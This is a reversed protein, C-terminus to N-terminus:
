LATITFAGDQYNAGADAEDDVDKVKVQFWGPGLNAVSVINDTPGESLEDAAYATFSATAVAVRSIGNVFRVEYIGTRLRRVQIAGGRCNLATDVFLTGSVFHAPPDPVARVRAFGEVHGPPCSQAIAQGSAHKTTSHEHAVSAAGTVLLLSTLYRAARTRTWHRTTTAGPM